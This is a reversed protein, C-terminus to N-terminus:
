TVQILGIRAIARLHYYLPTHFAVGFLAALLVTLKFIFSAIKRHIRSRLRKEIPLILKRLEQSEPLLVAKDLADKVEELLDLTNSPEEGM